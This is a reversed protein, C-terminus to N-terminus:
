KFFDNLSLMPFARGLRLTNRNSLFRRVTTFSSGSLVQNNDTEISEGIFLELSFIFNPTKQTMKIVAHWTAYAKSTATWNM